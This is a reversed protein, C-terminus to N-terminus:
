KGCFFLRRTRRDVEQCLKRVDAERTNHQTTKPTAGANSMVIYARDQTRAHAHTHPPQSGGDRQAVAATITSVGIARVSSFGTAFLAASYRHEVRLVVDSYVDKTSSYESSEIGPQL